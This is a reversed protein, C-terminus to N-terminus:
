PRAGRDALALLKAAVAGLDGAHAESVARGREARARTAVPDNLAVEFAAALESAGRVTVVADGLAAYVGSWNQVHPGSLIPAGLRAPELPNHGGPGPLLSGGVFAVRINALSLWTGLEGLTDAVYVTASGDLADGCARRGVRLGRAAALEAVAPGREPHRPVILLTAGAHALQAFAELVLAEEGLHTSAALLVPADGLAAEFAAVTAADAALPAGSLKLNLLGDRPAGLAALDAAMRSDQAFVLDYGGFVVKASGAFRSWGRLSAKSLRGSILATAVGRRRAQSLLNPWVESEAFVALNPRWHDLFRTAADPTDVPAFQHIAGGRDTLPPLRKGLLQAATVTGSTVLITLGPRAALLADVLPLLSVGEGVSAGHLWILPGPPRAADTHGLRERWRTPHEKGAALRRKLVLPLLPAALTTLARYASLGLPM